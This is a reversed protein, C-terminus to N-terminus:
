NPGTVHAVISIAGAPCNAIARRVAAESGEPVEFAAGRPAAYGDDDSEFVSPELSYCRGHGVCLDEDVRIRMTTTANDM